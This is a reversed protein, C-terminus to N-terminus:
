TPAGRMQARRAAFAEATSEIMTALATAAARAEVHRQAQCLETLRGCAEFM